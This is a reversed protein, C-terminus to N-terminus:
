INYSTLALQLVRLWNIPLLKGCAEIIKATDPLGKLTVEFMKKAKRVLSEKEVPEATEKVKALAQVQELLDTKDTDPLETSEEIAQQLQTL